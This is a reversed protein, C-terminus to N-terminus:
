DSNEPMGLLIEGREKERRSGEEGGEGVPLLHGKKDGDVLHNPLFHGPILMGKLDPRRMERGQKSNEHHYNVTREERHRDSSSDGIQRSNKTAKILNGEGRERREEEEM